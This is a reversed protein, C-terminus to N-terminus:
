MNLLTTKGSGSSGMVALFENTKIELDVQDLAKTEFTEGRYIKSVNRLQIM